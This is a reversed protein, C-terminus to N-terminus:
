IYLIAESAESLGLDIGSDNVFENREKLVIPRGTESIRGQVIYVVVVGRTMHTHTHTM